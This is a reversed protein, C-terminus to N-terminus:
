SSPPDGLEALVYGCPGDPPACHAARHGLYSRADAPSEGAGHTHEEGCLPCCPVVWALHELRAYAIPADDHTM